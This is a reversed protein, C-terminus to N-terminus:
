RLIGGTGSLKKNMIKWVERPINSSYPVIDADNLIASRQTTSEDINLTMMLFKKATYVINTVSTPSISLYPIAVFKSSRKLEVPNHLLTLWIKVNDM